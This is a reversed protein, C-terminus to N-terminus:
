FGKKYINIEFQRDLKNLKSKFSADYRDDDVQVVFGGILSPDTIEVLDIESQLLGKLKIEFADRLKDSLPIATKLSVTRIGKFEKCLQLTHQAIENLLRIRLAKVMLHLFRITLEHVKGQFLALLIGQKKATGIVPSALVKVLEPNEALVAAILRMDAEVADTLKMDVALSFYAGAYSAAIKKVGAM